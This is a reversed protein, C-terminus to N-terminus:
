GNDNMQLDTSPVIVTSECAAARSWLFAAVVYEPIANHRILPGGAENRLVIDSFNTFLSPDPGKDQLIIRILGARDGSGPM